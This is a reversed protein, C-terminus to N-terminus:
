GLGEWEAYFQQLYHEMFQHREQAIAKGKQTNM